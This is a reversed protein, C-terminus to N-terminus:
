LPNLIELSIHFIEPPPHKGHVATIMQWLVELIWSLHKSTDAPKLHQQSHFTFVPWTTLLHHVESKNGIDHGSLHLPLQPATAHDGDKEEQKWSQIPTGRLYPLDWLHFIQMMPFTPNPMEKSLPWLWKAWKDETLGCVTHFPLVLGGCSVKSATFILRSELTLLYLYLCIEPCRHRIM